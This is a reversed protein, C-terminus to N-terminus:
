QQVYFKNKIEKTVSEVIFEISDDQEVTCTVGNFLFTVPCKERTAVMVADCIVNLLSDGQKVVITRM